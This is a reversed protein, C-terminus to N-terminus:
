VHSADEQAPASAQAPLWESNLWRLFGALDPVVPIGLRAAIDEEQDAGPSLGPLRLVVDCVALWECDLTLWYAHEHPSIFHWFGTLHPVYPAGGWAFVREAAQVAARINVMVDGHTYPGAIYVRPRRAPQRVPDM